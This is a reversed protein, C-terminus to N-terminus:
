NTRYIYFQVGDVEALGEDGDYSALFHGIGDANTADEVFHEWDKIMAKLPENAGECQEQILRISEVNMGEPLHALLFEANFAWVTEQIYEGVKELSEEKTLVLYEGSNTDSLERYEKVEGTVFYERVQPFDKPNVLHYLTNVLTHIGIHKMEKTQENLDFQESIRHYMFEKNEKETKPYREFSQLDAVVEEKKIGVVSLANEVLKCNAIVEDPSTGFRKKRPSVEFQLEDYTSEEINEVGEPYDNLFLALAKKRTDPTVEQM